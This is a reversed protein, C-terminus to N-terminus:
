EHASDGRAGATISSGNRKKMIIKKKIIGVPVDVVHPLSLIFFVADDM